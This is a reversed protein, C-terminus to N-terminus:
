DKMHLVMDCVFRLPETKPDECILVIDFLEMYKDISKSVNFNLFGIKLVVDAEAGDSMQADGINDGLLLLGKSSGVVTAAIEGKTCSTILPESFGSVIGHEFLARNAIVQVLETGKRDLLTASTPHVLRGMFYFFGCQDRLVEEIVQAFGASFIIMPIKNCYLIQLLRDFDSRLFIQRCNKVAIRIHSQRLGKEQLMAHNLNWWMECAAAREKKPTSSSSEIPYYKEFLKRAYSTYEDGLLNSKEIIGHSSESNGKTLTRDFDAIIKLHGEGFRALKRLKDCVAAGDRMRIWAVNNNGNGDLKWKSIFTEMM